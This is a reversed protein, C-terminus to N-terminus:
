ERPLLFWMKSTFNPNYFEDHKLRDGWNNWMYEQEANFRDIRDADLDSGRSKSEYHYLEVMPLVVNYYGAKLLKLDLDM